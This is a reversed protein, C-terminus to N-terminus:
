ASRGGIRIIDNLRDTLRNLADTNTELAKVSERGEAIRKEQAADYKAFMRWCVFGLALIVVGAIGLQLLADISGSIAKDM